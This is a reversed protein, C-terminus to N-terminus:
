LWFPPRLLAGVAFDTLGLRLPVCWSRQGLRPRPFRDKSQLGRPSSVEIRHVSGTTSISASILRTVTVKRSIAPLRPVFAVAHALREAAQHEGIPELTARADGAVRRAVENEVHFGRRCSAQKRPRLRM